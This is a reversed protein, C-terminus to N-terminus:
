AAEGENPTDFLIRWVGHSVDGLGVKSKFGRTYAQGRVAIYTRKLTLAKELLTRDPDALVDMDHETWEYGGRTAQPITLAQLRKTADISRRSNARRQRENYKRERQSPRNQRCRSCHSEWRGGAGNNVRYSIRGFWEAGLLL